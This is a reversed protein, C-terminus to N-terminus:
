KLMSTWRLSEFNNDIMKDNRPQFRGIPISLSFRSDLSAISFDVTEQGPSPSSIGVLRDQFDPRALDQLSGSRMRDIKTGFDQIVNKHHSMSMSRVRTKYLNELLTNRIGLERFHETTDNGEFTGKRRSNGLTNVLDTELQWLGGVKQKGPDNQHPGSGYSEDSHGCQRTFSLGSIDTIPVQSSDNGNWLQLKASSSDVTQHRRTTLGHLPSTEHSPIDLGKLTYGYKLMTLFAVVFCCLNVGVALREREYHSGCGYVALYKASNLPPSPRSSPARPTLISTQRAAPSEPASSWSNKIINRSNTLIPDSCYSTPGSSGHLNPPELSRNRAQAPPTYLSSPVFDDHASPLPPPLESPLRPSRLREQEEKKMTIEVVKQGLHIKLDAKHFDRLHDLSLTPMGVYSPNGTLRPTPRYNLKKWWLEEFHSVTPESVDYEVSSLSAIGKLTDALERLDDDNWSTWKWSLENQSSMTMADFM